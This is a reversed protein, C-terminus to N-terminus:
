TLQPSIVPLRSNNDCGFDKDTACPLPFVAAVETDWADVDASNKEREHFRNCSPCVLDEGTGIQQYMSNPRKHECHTIM